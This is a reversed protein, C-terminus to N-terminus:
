NNTTKSDGRYHYEPEEIDSATNSSVCSHEYMHLRRIMSTGLVEYSLDWIVNVVKLASWRPLRMYPVRILICNRRSSFRLVGSWCPGIVSSGSTLGCEIDGPIQKKMTHLVSPTDRDRVSLSASMCLSGSAFTTIRTYQITFMPLHARVFSPLSLGSIYNSTLLLQIPSLKAERAVQYKSRICWCLPKNM